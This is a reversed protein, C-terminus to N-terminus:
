NPIWAHWVSENAAMWEAIVEDADRKEVDIQFIMPSQMANTLKM